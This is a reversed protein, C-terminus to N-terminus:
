RQRAIARQTEGCIRAYTEDNLNLAQWATRAVSPALEHGEDSSALQHVIANAIHVLAALFGVGHRDPEHHGAIALRMTDSFNWSIALLEGAEAHDIDLIDREAEILAGGHEHYRALVRAYEDPFCSVLVLRGIDHLLAATMAIDPHMGIHRALIGAAVSADCSHRWFVTHDFGKCTREPFCGTLAAKTILTRVNQFGLLTIAQHITTVKVATAFYASNALRLTKATLAMDQSVKGALLAIDLNDQDVINLLEMVILPPSPLDRVNQICQTRTATTM